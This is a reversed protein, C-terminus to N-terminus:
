GQKVKRLAKWWAAWEWFDSRGNGDPHEVWGWEFGGAGVRLVGVQRSGFSVHLHRGDAFTSYGAGEIASRYRDM